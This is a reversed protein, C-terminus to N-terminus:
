KQANAAEVKSVTITDDKMEGTLTVKEGAHAKLDAFDQNEIKYVKDGAVFVYDAGGKVCATTCDKETMKQGHEGAGHKAGCMSDSIIGNWTNAAFLPTASFLVAATLLGLSKKM